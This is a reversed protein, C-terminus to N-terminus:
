GFTVQLKLLDKEVIEDKRAMLEPLDWACSVYRGALWERRESTLYVIGDGALEPTDNCVAKVVEPPMNGALDTAVSAPHVSYVLLGEGEYEVMLYEGLRLVALKSPQYASAGPTLALAGVSTVNVITKDKSRLVLPLMARVVWYVGRVNVEWTLWWEGRDGEGLPVFPALYGANNVLIDIHGWKAAVEAACAEVTAYDTVDLRLLLFEVGGVPNVDRGAKAAAHLAEAHTASVDGRATIAIRSAGAKAYSAVIARGIGKAAGTVLVTKGACPAPHFVSPDIQPYTDHHTKSTFQVGLRSPNFAVM